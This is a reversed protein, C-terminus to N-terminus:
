KMKELLQNVLIKLEEIQKNQETKSQKLDEIQIQQEQIAKTLVSVMQSYNVGLIENKGLDGEVGNVLEPIVKKVEQAIFGVDEKKNNKWNFNVPKLLLIEKLGYNIGRINEKLRADSSSIYNGGKVVALGEGMLVENISSTGIVAQNNARSKAQHGIAITNTLNNSVVGAEFGIAINQTGLTNVENAAYGIGINWNGGTNRLLASAGLATNFNGQISNMLASEGIATNYNGINNMKSSNFGFATNFVGSTNESLANIGVASNYTGNTINNMSNAGLTFNDARNGAGHGLKLGNVILDNTFTKNGNITQDTSLDVFSGGSSSQNAWSVNGSGDTVLVQGTTGDTNPFTIAGTTLKGSTKVKLINTNGLRISNSEEAIAAAGIATANSLNIGSVNANYGVATNNSGTTNINLSANGVATNGTGSTNNELSFTGLGTNYNNINKGLAMFGIAVNEHGTLNATLTSAGIATNYEGNTNTKLAESGLATNYRGYINSRLAQYGFASLSSGYGGISTNSYISEFGLATNTAQNGNGRGATIGNINMDESFTKLGGINQDTNLDVFDYLGNGTGGTPNAWYANGFGDTTLVQNQIGPSSPFITGGISTKGNPSLILNAPNNLGAGIFLKKDNSGSFGKIIADGQQTGQFFQNSGGSIGFEAGIGDDGMRMWTPMSPQNPNPYVRLSPIVLNPNNKSTINLSGKINDWSFGSNSELNLNGDSFPIAGSAFNFEQSIPDSWTSLGTGNTTLVQGSTGRNIPLSFSSNLGNQNITLSGGITTNANKLVTFANSRTDYFTGNGIVFLRDGAVYATGSGTGITSYVGLVTEGYSQATNGRGAAFSINGSAINSTGGGVFAVSGSATNNEGGSIVAYNGSAVQTNIGRIMQLDVAKSGRNNGGSTTENPQQALISGTGKPSIVFDINNGPNLALLKVGTKSNNIYNSEAFNSIGGSTANTWTALGTGNSTLVQGNNGITNPYTIGGAKLLGNIYTSGDSNLELNAKKNPNTTGIFLKSSNSSSFGKILADGQQTGQFFQNEDGSIGFDAGVVDNGMRIWTPMSSDNPNPYVRFGPNNSKSIINLSGIVKDWIFDSSSELISNGDSFPIEGANFNFEPSIGDLGNRGDNGNIGDIGSDGKEGKEGKLGPAGDMGNTGNTGPEGKDGKLGPTGDMGNTGNTGPDGKDGKSGTAGDMGNIGNNGPDGKDGRLGPAGDMGNTGNTGPDGKDGKLGPTGDM